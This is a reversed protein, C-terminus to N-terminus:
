QLRIRLGHVSVGNRVVIANEEQKLLIGNESGIKISGDSSISIGEESMLEISKTSKIEIGKEDDLCISMGRNNTILIYNPAIRLEKGQATRIFKVAPDNKEGTKDEIYVASSVYANKEKEDPFSLRVREGCDPMFYWGNGDSSTYITAYPFWMGTGDSYDNECNIELMVLDRKVNIVEGYLSAGIIDYNWVEGPEFDGKERLRYIWVMEGNQINGRAQYVLLEKGQVIVPTCLEWIERSVICYEIINEKIASCGIIVEFDGSWETAERDKIPIGFYFCTSNNTCDPVLVTHIRAAMRKLFMWDTENYQVTLGETKKKQGAFYIVSTKVTNKLLLKVIDRYTYDPNQFTRIHKKEDLWATNSEANITLIYTNRTERIKFNYVRGRFFSQEKGEEEAYIALQDNSKFFRINKEIEKTIYGSIKVKFHENVAKYVDCSLISKFYYPETKINIAKM